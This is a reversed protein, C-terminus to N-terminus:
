RFSSSTFGRRKMGNLCPARRNKSASSSNPLGSTQRAQDPGLPGSHVMQHVDSPLETHVVPGGCGGSCNDSGKTLM